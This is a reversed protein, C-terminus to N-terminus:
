EVQERVYCSLIEVMDKDRDDYQKPNGWKGHM